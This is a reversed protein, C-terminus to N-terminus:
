CAKPEETEQIVARSTESDSNWDTSLHRHTVSNTWRMRILARTMKRNKESDRNSGELRNPGGKKRCAIMVGDITSDGNKRSAREAM